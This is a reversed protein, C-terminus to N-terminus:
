TQYVHIYINKRQKGVHQINITNIYLSVKISRDDFLGYHILPVGPNQIPSRTACFLNGEDKYYRIFWLIIKHPYTFIHQFTHLLIIIVYM